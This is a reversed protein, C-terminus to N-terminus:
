ANKKGFKLDIFRDLGIIHSTNFIAVILFAFLEILNKDIFFQGNMFPPLAIYYLLLLIAGFYAAIRSFLGIILGLGIFIQGYINLIDVIQLTISSNAISQFLDIFIWNAQILFGGSTWIPDLVKNLGEYLFHYGLVLRLLTLVLTQTNTYIM